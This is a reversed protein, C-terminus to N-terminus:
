ERNRDRSPRSRRCRPQFLRPDREEVERRPRLDLGDPADILDLRRDLRVELAMEDGRHRKGVLLVGEGIQGIPDRQGRALLRASLTPAPPPTPSGGSRALPYWKTNSKRRVRGAHIKRPRNLIM